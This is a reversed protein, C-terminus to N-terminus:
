LEGYTKAFLAYGKTARMWTLGLLAWAATGALRGISNLTPETIAIATLNLLTPVTLVLLSVTLKRVELVRM